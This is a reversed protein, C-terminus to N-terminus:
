SSVTVVHRLVALAPVSCRDHEKPFQSMHLKPLCQTTMKIEMKVAWSFLVTIIIIFIILTCFSEIDWLRFATVEEKGQGSKFM